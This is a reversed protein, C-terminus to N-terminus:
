RNSTPLRLVAGKAIGVQELHGTAKAKTVPDTFLLHIHTSTAPHTLKGVADQAYVGVITGKADALELEFPRVEQPLVLKKMRAHVPCAGNIVHLRVARLNGDITFVFPKDLDLGAQAATQSVFDDFEDPAIDKAVTYQSWSDVYAGALMTARVDATVETVPNLRGQDDVTTVTVRGDFVTAEGQLGELAAVAYLHPRKLLDALRVRGQHQRQGIAEHMTGFQILSGVPTGQEDAQIADGGALQSALVAGALLIARGTM